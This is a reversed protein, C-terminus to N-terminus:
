GSVSAGAAGFTALRLFDRRSSSDLLRSLAPMLRAGHSSPPFSPPPQSQKYGGNPRTDLSYDATKPKTGLAFHVCQCHHSMRFINLHCPPRVIALFLASSLSSSGF